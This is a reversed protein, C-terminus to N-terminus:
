VAHNARMPCDFIIVSGHVTPVPADADVTCGMNCGPTACQSSALGSGLRQFPALDHGHQEAFYLALEILRDRNM